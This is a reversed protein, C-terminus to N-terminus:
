VAPLGPGGLDWYLGAMIALGERAIAVTGQNNERDELTAVKSLGKQRLIQAAKDRDGDAEVLANKADKMGAGTADRLAKVDQATIDAM